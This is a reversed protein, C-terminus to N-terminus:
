KGRDIEDDRIIGTDAQAGCSNVICDRSTGDMIFGVSKNIGDVIPICYICNIYLIFIFIILKNM